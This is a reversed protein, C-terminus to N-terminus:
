AEQPSVSWPWVVWKPAQGPNFYKWSRGGRWDDTTIQSAEVADIPNGIRNAESNYAKFETARMIRGVIKLAKEKGAQGTIEEGSLTDEGWGTPMWFQWKKLGCQGIKGDRVSRDGFWAFCGWDASNDAVYIPWTFNVLRNKFETPLPGATSHDGELVIIAQHCRWFALLRLWFNEEGSWHKSNFWFERGAPHHKTAEVVLSRPNIIM